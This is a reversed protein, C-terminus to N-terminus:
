VNSFGCHTIKSPPLLTGENKMKNIKNLYINPSYLNLSYAYQLKNNHIRQLGHDESNFSIDGPKLQKIISFADCNAFKQEIISGDLIKMLCDGDPQSQISTHCYPNWIFIYMGYLDDYDDFGEIKLEDFIVPVTSFNNIDFHSKYSNKIKYDYWDNGDYSNLIPAVDKLKFDSKKPLSTIHKNIANSLQFLSRIM